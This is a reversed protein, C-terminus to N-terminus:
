QKIQLHGERHRASQLPQHLLLPLLVILGRAKGDLGGTLCGLNEKSFVTREDKSDSNRFEGHTVEVSNRDRCFFTWLHEFAKFDTAATNNISYLWFTNFHLCKWFFTDKYIHTLTQCHVPLKSAPPFLKVTNPGMCYEFQLSSKM